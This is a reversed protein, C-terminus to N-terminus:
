RVVVQSGLSLKEFLVSCAEKPIRICGHSNEDRYVNGVHMGIAGNIRMWYPMKAGVYECGEPVRTSPTANSNIINGSADLIAGYLNSRYDQAKQQIRFTGKPTHKGDKGTCVPFDMAIADDIYLRGRQQDLLIEVRGNRGNAQSLRDDNRWIDRSYRYEPNHIFAEYSFPLYGNRARPHIGDPATQCSGLLTAALCLAALKRWDPRLYKMHGLM